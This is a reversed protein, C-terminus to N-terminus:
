ELRNAIQKLAETHQNVTQTIMQLKGDIDGIAALVDVHSATFLAMMQKLGEVAEQPTKTPDVGANDILYDLFRQSEELGPVREKIGRMTEIYGADTM